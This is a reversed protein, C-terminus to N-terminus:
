EVIRVSRREESRAGLKMRTQVIGSGGEHLMADCTIRGRQLTAHAQRLDGRVSPLGYTVAATCISM